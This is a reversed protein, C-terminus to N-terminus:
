EVSLITVDYTLTKGALPHNFDLVATDENIEVVRASGRSGMQGFVAGVQRLNEPVQDLPVEKFANEDVPYTKEPPLTVTTEEGAALGVLAAELAPLLKGDGQKYKIPYGDVNSHVVKGDPLSVTYRLSVVKGPEVTNTVSEAASVNLSCLLLTLSALFDPILKRQRFYM